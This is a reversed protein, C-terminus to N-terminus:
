QEELKRYLTRLSIGAAKAAKSKDNGCRDMLSKFYAKELQKLTLQSHAVQSTDSAVGIGTEQARQQLLSDILAPPILNGEALVSARLLFNRLERINGPWDTSQLKQKASETLHYRRRKDFGELIADAILPIDTKREDLSPMRIPFVNIRYYLDLRFLGEQVREWLNHHTACILRFDTRRTDSSGLPRYTGTEILRLLKVQLNLPIDGVEDLFLTGGDATSALGQREFNAGTFAGKTHGFLESEFLTETLGSCELTVMPKNHRPSKQHLLQAIVEKGTGSDGLLLVAIDREAVRSVSSLIDLFRPHKGAIQHGREETGVSVPRLVEIFHSIEGSDDFLPTMEVDVHEKGRPTHHIHLVRTKEGRDRCSQMPCDEGSQDCPKDYGHSVAFCKPQESLDISGFAQHYAGNTAEIEYNANVLIAPLEILQLLQSKNTINASMDINDNLKDSEDIKANQKTDFIDFTHEICRLEIIIRAKKLDEGFHIHPM